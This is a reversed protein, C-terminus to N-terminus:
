TPTSAPCELGIDGLFYTGARCDFLCLWTCGFESEVGNQMDLIHCAQLNCLVNVVSTLRSTATHGTWIRLMGRGHTLFAKRAHM